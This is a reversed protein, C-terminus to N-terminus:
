SRRPITNSSKTNHIHHHYNNSNVIEERYAISLHINIAIYLEIYTDIYPYLQCYIHVTYAATCLEAQSATLLVFVGKYYEM